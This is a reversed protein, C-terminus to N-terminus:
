ILCALQKNEFIMVSPQGVIKKICKFHFGKKELETMKNLTNEADTADDITLQFLGDEKNLCSLGLNAAERIQLNM